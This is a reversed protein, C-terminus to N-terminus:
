IAVTVILIKDDEKCLLESKKIRVMVNFTHLNWAGVQLIGLVLHGDKFGTSICQGDNQAINALYVTYFYQVTCWMRLLVFVVPILVLLRKAAKIREEVAASRDPNCHGIVIPRYLQIFLGDLM